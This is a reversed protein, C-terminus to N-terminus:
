RRSVASTPRGPMSAPRLWLPPEAHGGRRAADRDARAPHAGAGAHSRRGLVRSAIVLAAAAPCRPRPWRRGSTAARTASAIAPTASRIPVADDSLHAPALANPHCAPDALLVADDGGGPAVLDLGPGHQLVDACAAITADDRRGLDRGPIRAPYAIQTPRTTARPPSSSSAGTVPSLIVAQVILPIQSASRRPRAPVRPEPQDGQRRPRGRLPDRRRDDVRRGRREANLVRVPMISAGYALGTLGIGNNTARGIVGAVFTGHGTRDLPYPQRDVFDIPRRRVARRSTRRSAPFQGLRSLRRRHRARRGGRGQRRRSPRRAPEGLAQPADVGAAPSSTGSCGRGAAARRSSHRPDDPYFAGAAHAIYDPLRLRRGAAACSARRGRRGVRGPPLKVVRETRRRRDGARGRRVGVSRSARRGAIPHRRRLRRDRTGPSALAARAAAHGAASRAARFARAALAALLPPQPLCHRDLARHVTAVHDALCGTAARQRASLTLVDDGPRFNGQQVTLKALPCEGILARKKGRSSYKM